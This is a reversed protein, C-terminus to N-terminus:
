RPACTQGALLRRCAEEIANTLAFHSVLDLEKRAKGEDIRRRLSRLLDVARGKDESALFGVANTFNTLVQVRTLPSAKFEEAARDLLPEVVDTKANVRKKNKILRLAEVTDPNAPGTALSLILVPVANAEFASLLLAAARREVPERSGLDKVVKIMTESLEFEYRRREQDIYSCATIGATIITALITVISIITPLARFKYRVKLDKIEETLKAAELAEKSQARLPATAAAALEQGRKAQEYHFAAELARIEAKLKKIKLAKTTSRLFM